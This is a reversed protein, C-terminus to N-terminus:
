KVDIFDNIGPVCNRTKCTGIALVLREHHSIILVPRITRLCAVPRARSADCEGIRPCRKEHNLVMVVGSQGWQPDRRRPCGSPASPGSSFACDRGMGLRARAAIRWGRGHRRSGPARGGLDPDTALRSSPGRPGLGVERLREVLDADGNSNTEVCLWVLMRLGAGVARDGSARCFDSHM